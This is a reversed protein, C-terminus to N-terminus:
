PETLPLTFTTKQGIIGIMIQNKHIRHLYYGIPYLSEGEEYEQGNIIALRKGGVELYGSYIWNDAIPASQKESRASQKEAKQLTDPKESHLGKSPSLFPDKTWPDAALEVMHKEIESTKQQSLQSALNAILKKDSASTDIASAKAPTSQESDYFLMYWGWIITFLMITLIIRERKSM